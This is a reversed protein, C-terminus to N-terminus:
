WLLGEEFPFNSILETGDKTIRMMEELKIGTKTGERAVYSEVCVTMNEEFHGEYGYEDFIKEPLVCPWENKMGEGHVLLNVEYKKFKEPIKWSKEVFERFSVGAKLLSRNHHIQEYSLSYAEKQEDAGVSGPLCRWTRSMDTNYGWPGIMDTDVLLLDGEQIERDSAENYLPVTREGTALLRTEIYDGGLAANVGVLISWIENEKM